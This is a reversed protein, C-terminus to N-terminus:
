SSKSSAILVYTYYLERYIKFSDQMEKNNEKNEKQSGSNRFKFVKKWRDQM